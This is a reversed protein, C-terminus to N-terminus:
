AGVVGSPLPVAQPRPADGWTLGASPGLLMEALGSGWAPGAPPKGWSTFCVRSGDQGRGPERRGSALDGGRATHTPGWPWEWGDAEGRPRPSSPCPHGPMRISMATLAGLSAPGICLLSPNMDCWGAGNWLRLM